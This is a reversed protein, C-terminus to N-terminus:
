GNKRFAVGERRSQFLLYFIIIISGVVVASDALNFVPWAGIDIFDVVKGLRIRDILNGVAGGLLLGLAIRIPVRNAQPYRSYILIAVVGVIATLTILFAQNAFIGFVGGANTTYTIRFFGEEPMSQGLTMNAQVFYKSLQDVTVVIFAAFFFTLEKIHRKM